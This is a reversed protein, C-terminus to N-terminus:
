WSCNICTYLAAIEPVPFYESFLLKIAQLIRCGLRTWILHIELCNDSTTWSWRKGNSLV